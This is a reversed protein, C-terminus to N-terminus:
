SLTPLLKIFDQHFQNFKQYNEQPKESWQYNWLHNIFDVYLKEGERKLEYKIPLSRISKILERAGDEVIQPNWWPWNSLWYLNCSSTGRDFHKEASSYILHADDKPKPVERLAEYTFNLLNLYEQQLQNDTRNWLPFSQNNDLDSKYTNWSTPITTNVEFYEEPPNKLIESYQWLTVAPDNGISRMLDLREMYHHGFIEADNISSVFSNNASKENLWKSFSPYNIITPYSRIVETLLRSTAILKLGRYRYIFHNPFESLNFSPNVSSEDVLVAQYNDNLGQLVTDSTALEPPFVLSIPYSHYYHHLINANYELQRIWINSTNLPLIPHYLPSNILEIQNTDILQQIKTFFDTRKMHSLKLTLSGSINVSMRLRPEQILIDLLPLYCSELIQEIIAEDQTAPQYFHLGFAWNIM